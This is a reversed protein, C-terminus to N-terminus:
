TWEARNVARPRSCGNPGGAIMTGSFWSSATSHITARALDFTMGNCPRSNERGFAQGGVMGLAVVEATVSARERILQAIPRQMSPSQGLDGHFMTAQLRRVFFQAINENAAHERRFSERSAQNLHPDLEREDADFRPSVRVIVATLLGGLFLTTALATMRRALAKITPRM